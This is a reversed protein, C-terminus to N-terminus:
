AQDLAGQLRSRVDEIVADMGDAQVVQFMAGPDIAGVVAHGEDDTSVVVNCPLLLGIAPDAQVAAWASPPHCAGLIVYPPMDHGLKKKMTAAMDIETLIGFGHHGLAERVRAVGETFGCDLTRTLGYSPNGIM